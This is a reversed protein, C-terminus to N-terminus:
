NKKKSDWSNKVLNKSNKLLIHKAVKKTPTYPFDDVFEIYRPVKFAALREQCHKIIQEPTLTKSLERFLIYAKVEEGRYDDPVAIVAAQEILPHMSLAHEVEMASINESSRRIMDKFRGIIKFYGKETQIFKDGTRFWNGVFSESNAKPKNYYGKFIGDGKIWLEGPENRAAEEGNELMVKCHRFPTMLGCTDLVDVDTIEDPVILGPGIETMGYANSVNIGFRQQLQEINEASAGGIFLKKLSLNVDDPSAKQSLLPRPFWAMDIDFRKIREIFKSASLRGAVNLRAGCHLAMVLQWQPDMYYFSHDTLINNISYPLMSDVVCGLLIWYKQTQMCGKPFGTTGSTYQINLLDDNHLPWDPMFDAQGSESVDHWHHFVSGQYNAVIIQNAGITAPKEKMDDFVALFQNETIIFESDSDNILYDLEKGTYTTNVPVMVAGLVALALWTVPFEIRNSLMVAVHSGKKVGILTLGHALHYVSDHLESFTLQVGVGKESVQEFFNIATKDGYNKNALALLERFNEPFPISTEVHNKRVFYAELESEFSM